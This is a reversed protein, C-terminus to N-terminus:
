DPIKGADNMSATGRFRGGSSEDLLAVLGVGLVLDSVALTGVMVTMHGVTCSHPHKTNTLNINTENGSGRM